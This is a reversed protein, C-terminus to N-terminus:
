SLPAMSVPLDTTGLISQFYSASHSKIDDATFILQDNQDKLFHIHNRTVHQSVTRHYFVTNRDGVDAWQVRSRERYFKGEATLLINLEARQSHEERSTVTDPSTLLARQLSDVVPVRQSIGSYHRNNLGRLVPKLLKFSRVLKFQNTGVIQNFQWGERVLDAYQPHDIVHHFFKFPKCVRRRLSPVRFLCPAHDSQSPDLFDAYADPFSDSWQQNIFAHDIKTSIPDDDKRKNKLLDAEQLALNIDEIELTDVRASLHNSHHSIRLIQNFDGLVAWPCRSVPTSANLAVLGSLLSSRDTINVNESPISIGCTMSQDTVQYVFVMVRPDWVLVIRGADNEEYNGFFKWGQPIARMIREKNAELIHTELFAGFFPKHINIWDKTMTHRRDSNLGRVNWKRDCKRNNVLFFPKEAEESHGTGEAQVSGLSISQGLEINEAREIVEGEEEQNEAVNCVAPEVMTATVGHSSKSSEETACPITGAAVTESTVLGDDGGEGAVLSGDSEPEVKSDVIKDNDSSAHSALSAVEAECQVDQSTVQGLAVINTDDEQSKVARSRSPRSKSRIPVGAINWCSRSVLTERTKPNTVKLLFLGQGISHVYIRPGSKAWAANIVRIIRGMPPVDSHFWAFLYDKFEEKAAAINEDPILVFPAGSVHETPTGLEKLDSSSKLVSAYNRVPELAPAAVVSPLPASNGDIPQSGMELSASPPIPGSLSSDMVLSPSVVGAVLAPSFPLSKHPNVSCGIVSVAGLSGTSGPPLNGFVIGAGASLAPSVESRTLPMAASGSAVVDASRIGVTSISKNKSKALSALRASGVFKAAKSSVGFPSRFKKKKASMAVDSLLFKFSESEKLVGTPTVSVLCNKINR